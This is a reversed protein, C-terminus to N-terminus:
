LKIKLIIIKSQKVKLKILKEYMILQEDIVTPEITNRVSFKPHAIMKLIYSCNYNFSNTLNLIQM